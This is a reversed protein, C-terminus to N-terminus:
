RGNTQIATVICRTNESMMGIYSGAASGEDGLSDGYLEGGLHVEHGEAACSAVLAEMSKPHITNECFIVNAQRAIIEERAQVLDSTSIEVVTSIGQLSRVEMGYARAYYAFADHPTFLIRRASPITAVETAIHTHLVKLRALYNAANQAYVEAHNPDLKQLQAAISATVKMWLRVDGWIHPDLGTHFEDGTIVDEENLAESAVVVRKQKRIGMLFNHMGGGELYLGNCVVLDAKDLELSDVITPEYSHPDVGPGMLVVLQAKDQVIHHVIDALMGTTAVIYMKGPEKDRWSKKQRAAFFIAVGTMLILVFFWRNSPDVKPM